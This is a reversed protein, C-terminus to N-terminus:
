EWRFMKIALFCSIICWVLLGLIQPLVNALTAGDIAISRMGDALYTLPFFGTITHVFGPLAARSFFIGSLAMMPLSVVNALPAVQDESKSVGALAFGIALFVIAGLAGLAFMDWVSGTFHLGFAFVGIAVMIVIQLMVLLLRTVVQALIFDNPNIPTVWLRRLIGRKKLSVFSFAVGFIGMQMIAMSLIGPVLFDIYTLNRGKMQVTVVRIRNPVAVQQFVSEDLIRQVILTGLQGEQPKAENTFVRVSHESATDFGVPIVLVIDREGKQLQALEEAESGEHVRLSSVGNLSEVLKSGPNGAINVLGCNVRGIGGFKALGFLTMMFVPFIISWIIAEKQRFFMKISAVTLKWKLRM